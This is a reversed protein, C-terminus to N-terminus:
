KKLLKMIDIMDVAPAVGVETLQFEIVEWNVINCKYEIAHSLHSRLPGTGTWIKGNKSWESGVGESYTAGGKSYLGSVKHRVKFYRKTKPDKSM